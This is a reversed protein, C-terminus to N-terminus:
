RNDDNFLEVLDNTADDVIKEMLWDTYDCSELWRMVEKETAGCKEAIESAYVWVGGECLCVTNDRHDLTM